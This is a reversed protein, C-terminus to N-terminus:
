SFSFTFNMGLARPQSSSLVKQAQPTFSDSIMNGPGWAYPVYM